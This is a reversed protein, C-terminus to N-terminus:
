QRLLGGSFAQARQLELLGGRAAAHDPALQLAAQYQAVAEGVRGQRALAYGLNHHADPDDPRLRVAEAFQTAAEAFKGQRALAFGLDMRGNPRGPDLRLAEALHPEAEGPRDLQVLVAGLNARADPLDPRLRVAEALHEAAEDPRGLGVAAYALNIRAEADNPELRVAEAFQERAESARGSEVLVLGLKSHAYALGPALRIAERLHVEAEDSQGRGALARGLRSEFFAEPRGHAAAVHRWLTVSDRWVECQKWSLGLLTPLLIGGTAIVARRVAPTPRTEILRILGAVLVVPLGLLALYGYRDAAITTSFRMLGSTPLMLLLYAAWAAGLAPLPRRLGLAALGIAAFAVLSLLFRPEAWDIRDPLPYVPSLGLPLLTKLPYFCAGFCAQTVRSLPGDQELTTITGDGSRAWITVLGFGLSLAFFPAKELVIGLVKRSRLRGLDLRRLPYVDLVLLVLPLCLALGYFALSVAFLGVAGALAVGRHRGESRAARLYALGALVAFLTAGLYPQLTAWAVAESRLPHVAHLGVVLAALGTSKGSTGEVADPRAARVLALTLAFLALSNAAHLLLSTLHYGRPDLGWLEYEVGHLLRALPQYVGQLRSTWAWRWQPWGLGRFHPNTTFNEEDDLDVFENSLIPGFAALAGAVVLFGLLVARGKTRTSGGAPAPGADASASTAQDRIIRRSRERTRKM